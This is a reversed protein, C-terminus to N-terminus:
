RYVQMVTHHLPIESRQAVASWLQPAEPIVWPSGLVDTVLSTVIESGVLLGADM